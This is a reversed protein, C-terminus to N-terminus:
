GGWGRIRWPDDRMTSPCGSRFFRHSKAFEITKMREENLVNVHQQGLDKTINKQRQPRMLWFLSTTKSRKISSCAVKNSLLWLHPQNSSKTWETMSWEQIDPNIYRCIKVFGLSDIVTIRKKLKVKDGSCISRKWVRLNRGLQGRNVCTNWSEQVKIGGRKRGGAGLKVNLSLHWRYVCFKMGWMKM